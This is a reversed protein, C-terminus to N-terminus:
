KYVIARSIRLKTGSSEPNRMDSVTMKITHKGPSLNLIHFLHAGNLWHFGAGTEEMWYYNDIQRVFQDDVFVDAKGGDRDWRGMIVAGSGQFTFTCSAGPGEAVKQYESTGWQQHEIDAWKGGWEWGERDEITTRYDPKLSPFSQELEPSVPNQMHIRCTGNEVTGGHSVILQQAYELTREVVRNFSYSTHIFNEEAIESIYQTWQDPIQDYGLIIGLVGAANSPNCDSDQGCRTSIEITKEFDSGGYLLGMVIYAGNIKADINFHDLAGCIDVTGWKAQIDQWTARWDDHHQRHGAIVDQICRAYQSEAPISKLATNVISPIDDDFYAATYLASVFMGGYVGDGYNMIHGIKDCMENASRPMGPNMFGIFDAEIQFDIDDAHLNYEPHGSKPPMIGDWVNKRAKRNAHFLMYGANAFAEAFREAPADMGDEDITMMFSMQVYLDDEWISNRLSAPDWPIDDENIVGNYRFETPGGYSVGIMKGAWGGAIKDRLTAVSIERFESSNQTCFGALVCISILVLKIILDRVQRM